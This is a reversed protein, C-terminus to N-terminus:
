WFPIVWGIKEDNVCFHFFSFNEKVKKNVFNNQYFKICNKLVTRYDAYIEADKSVRVSQIVDFM